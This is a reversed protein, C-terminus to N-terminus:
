RHRRDFYGSFWVEFVPSERADVVPAPRDRFSFQNFWVAEIGVQKHREIWRLQADSPKKGPAKAEWYFGQWPWPGDLARGGPAILPRASLWDTAGEEGIRMINRAAQELTIQRLHLQKLVRYPAVTGIHQRISKFGRWILFDKIQRELVNEPLDERRRSARLVAPAKDDGRALNRELLELQAKSARIV